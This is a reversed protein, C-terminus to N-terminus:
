LTLWQKKKEDFEEQTIVGMDLLNKLKMIKEANSEDSKPQTVAKVTNKVPEISSKGNNDCDLAFLVAGAINIVNLVILWLGFYHLAIFTIFRVTMTGAAIFGINKARNRMIGAIALLIYGIVPLIITMLLAFAELPEYVTYGIGVMEEFFFSISSISLGGIAMMAFGISSLFTKAILLGAIVLIVGALSIVGQVSFWDILDILNLIAMIAFPVIAIYRLNKRDM